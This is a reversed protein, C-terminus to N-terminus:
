RLEVVRIKRREKEVKVSIFRSSLFIIESMPLNISGKKKMRSIETQTITKARAMSLQISAMLQASLFFLKEVAKPAKKVRFSKKRRLGQAIILSAFM